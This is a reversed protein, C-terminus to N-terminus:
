TKIYKLTNRTVVHINTEYCTKFIVRTFRSVNCNRTHRRKYVIMDKTCHIFGNKVSHMTLELPLLKISFYSIKLNCLYLIHNYSIFIELVFIGVVNSLNICIERLM